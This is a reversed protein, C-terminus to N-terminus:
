LIKDSQQRLSLFLYIVLTVTKIRRVTASKSDSEFIYNRSDSDIVFVLGNIINHSINPAELWLWTSM